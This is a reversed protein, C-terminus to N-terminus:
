GAGGRDDIIRWQGAAELRWLLGGSLVVDGVKFERSPRWQVYGTM